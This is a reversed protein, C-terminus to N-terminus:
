NEMLHESRVTMEATKFIGAVGFMDLDSMPVTISTTILGAAINNSVSTPTAFVGARAEVFDIVEATTTLRGVSMNRNADQVIRLLKSQGHFVMSVDALLGFLMLYFPLWLVAEITAAGDENRGFRFLKRFSKRHCRM